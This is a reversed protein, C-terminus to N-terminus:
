TRATPVSLVGSMCRTCAHMCVHLVFSVLVGRVVVRLLNIKADIRYIMVEQLVCAPVHVVHWAARFCVTTPVVHM